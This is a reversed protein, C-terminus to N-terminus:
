TVHNITEKKIIKSCGFDRVPRRDGIEQSFIHLIEQDKPKKEHNGSFTEAYEKTVTDYLNEGKNLDQEMIM